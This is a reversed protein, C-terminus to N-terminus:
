ESNSCPKSQAVVLSRFTARMFGIKPVESAVAIFEEKSSEISQLTTEFKDKINEWINEVVQILEDEIFHVINYKVEASVM